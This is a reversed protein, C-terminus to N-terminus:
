LNILSQIANESAALLPGPFAFFFLTLLGTVGQIAAMTTGIPKDFPAGAEDFYMVKIIRIYYYAGVVSTLVGVIALLYLGSEIAALFVYLKGFFGALPPIGAMSFMMIALVAAMLPNTRSLGKLDDIEELMRGGRRMSLVVCFTGVVMVLYITM